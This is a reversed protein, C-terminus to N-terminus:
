AEFIERFYNQGDTRTSDLLAAGDLELAALKDDILSLNKLPDPCFRFVEVIVAKNSDACNLGEFRLYYEKQAETFAKIETQAAYAYTVALVEGEVIEEVADAAIQQATTFLNISGSDANLSYNEGAVYTIASNVGTGKVVVTSVKIKALTITKGLYAITEEPTAVTGAVSDVVAGWLAVALNRKDQVSELTLNTSCNKETVLVKDLGRAGSMSEKHEIKSTKLAVELKTVNGVPTFGKPKGTIADREAFLVIGQGNYYKTTMDLNTM